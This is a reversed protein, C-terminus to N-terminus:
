VHIHVRCQRSVQDHGGAGLIGRLRARGFGDHREARAASLKRADVSPDRQIVVVVADHRLVMLRHPGSRLEAAFCRASATEAKFRLLSIAVLLLGGSVLFRASKEELWKWIADAIIESPSDRKDKHNRLKQITDIAYEQAPTLYFTNRRANEPV